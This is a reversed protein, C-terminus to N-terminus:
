QEDADGYVMAFLSYGSVMALNGHGVWDRDVLRCVGYPAMTRSACSAGVKWQRTAAMDFQSNRAPNTTNGPANEESLRAMNDLSDSVPRATCSKM